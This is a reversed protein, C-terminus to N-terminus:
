FVCVRVCVCVRVFVCTCVCVRVRVCVRVDCCELLFTHNGETLDWMWMGVIVM